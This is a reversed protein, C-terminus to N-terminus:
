KDGPRRLALGVAVAAAPSIDEIYAQDFSRPNIEINAFSNVIEVPTNSKQAIAKDLGPVKSCGGSIFIKAIKEEGATASFFELSRQIESTLNESISSFIGALEPPVAEKAGIKMKEAEDYSVNLTKQIEETYQNGGASVDRTFATVGAKLVNINIVSAGINVLGVIEGEAISYNTEYMNEVAFAAVDVVVPMLGTEKVMTVYDNIMDKKAAVLLVSMQGEEAASGLIQFDINVDKIDFPIYQEAEWQISEELEESSMTPLNIKKVIVSHGSVSIACDKTKVKSSSLISRIADGVVSGNMVAGDVISDPPISAMGFNVLQYGKKRGPRLEVLKVSSSGIDLGIVGRGRSFLAM